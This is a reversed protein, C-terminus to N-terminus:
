PIRCHARHMPAGTPEPEATGLLGFAGAFWVTFVLRWKTVVCASHESTSSKWVASSIDPVRASEVDEPRLLQFLLALVRPSGARTADKLTEPASPSSPESPFPKRRFCESCPTAEVFAWGKWFAVSVRHGVLSPHTDTNPACTGSSTSLLSPLRETCDGVKRSSLLFRHVSAAASAATPQLACFGPRSRRISYSTFSRLVGALSDQGAKSACALSVFPEYSPTELRGYTMTSQKTM